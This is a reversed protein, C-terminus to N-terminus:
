NFSLSFGRQCFLNLEYSISTQITCIRIRSAKGSPWM